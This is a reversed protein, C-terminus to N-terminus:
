GTELFDQKIFVEKTTSFNRWRGWKWQHEQEEPETIQETPMSLAKSSWSETNIKGTDTNYLSQIRNQWSRFWKQRSRLWKQLLRLRKQRNIRMRLLPKLRFWHQNQRHILVWKVQLPPFGKATSKVRAPTTKTVKPVSKAAAAVPTKSSNKKNKM